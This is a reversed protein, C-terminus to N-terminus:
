LKPTLVIKDPQGQPDEKVDVYVFHHLEKDKPLDIDRKKKGIVTIELEPENGREVHASKGPAILETEIETQAEIPFNSENHVFYHTEGRSDAPVIEFRNNDTPKVL